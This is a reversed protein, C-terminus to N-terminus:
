IQAKETNIIVVLIPFHKAPKVEEDKNISIGYAISEESLCKSYNIKMINM